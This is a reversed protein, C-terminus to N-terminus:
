TSEKNREVRVQHLHGGMMQLRLPSMSSFRLDGLTQDAEAYRRRKRPILRVGRRLSKGKHSLVYKGRLRKIHNSRQAQKRVQRSKVIEEAVKAVDAMSKERLCYELRALPEADPDLIKASSRAEILQKKRLSYERYTLPEADPDLLLAASRAEISNGAHGEHFEFIKRIAEAYRNKAAMDSGWFEIFLWGDREDQGQLFPSVGRKMKYEECDSWNNLVFARIEDFCAKRLGTMIIGPGKGPMACVPEYTYKAM